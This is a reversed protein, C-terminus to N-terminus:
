ASLIQRPKQRSGEEGGAHLGLERYPGRLVPPNEGGRRRPSSQHWVLGHEVPSRRGHCGIRDTRCAHDGGSIRITPRFLEQHCKDRSLLENAVSAPQPFVDGATDIKLNVRGDAWPGGSAVGVTAAAAM